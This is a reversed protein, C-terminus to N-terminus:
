LRNCFWCQHFLKIKADYECDMDWACEFLMTVCFHNTMSCHLALTLQVLVSLLPLHWVSFCCLLQLHMWEDFLLWCHLSFQLCKLMLNHLLHSFNDSPSARLLMCITKILTEVTKCTMNWYFCFDDPLVFRMSPKSLASSFLCWYLTGDVIAISWWWVPPNFLPPFMFIQQVKSTVSYLFKIYAWM